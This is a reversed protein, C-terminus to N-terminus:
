ACGIQWLTEKLADLFVRNEDPLGVTIRIYQGLGYSDMARVIVGKRLLADYVERGRGVKLLFFNAQSPVCELGMASLERVLRAMGENNNKVSNEIHERDELAARAAVQALSNVNFPQRVKDMCSIITKDAIGYGIRLGALGYIKSFTRLVVVNRGGKVYDLSDPFDADTVYEYYAEDLVLIVDEPLREILGELDTRGVITGTPNNPNAIFVARTSGTVSGFMAELDYHLDGRLPVRVAKCGAAQTIIPYVAFSPEGMIVEEGPRLFTRILLEIIENSGNGVILDEPAVELRRALAEKLYYCSGDPYRHMNAVAGNVAEIAKGSPGLPNENSALKISGSVGLERELEEIPKGPPYPVLKAIWEPILGKSTNSM